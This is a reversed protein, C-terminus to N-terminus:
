LTREATPLDLAAGLSRSSFWGIVLAWLLSPGKGFDCLLGPTLM